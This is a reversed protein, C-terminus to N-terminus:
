YPERSFSKLMNAANRNHPDLALSKKYNIAALEKDGNALYAEGLSNYANSSQPYLEANVNFVAIAEAIRKDRLLSYGLFNLRAEQVAANAPKERKITKYGGIAEALKGMTLQEYPVMANKSIRPAESSGEAFNLRIAVVSGSPSKMFTYRIDIDKRVFESESVPFLEFKPSATPEAYLGGSEQTVTLVRDPNVLFRGVYENLRTPAVSVVERPLPLYDDWQYERAIGRLIENIIQGNDSNVMVVAGYGKDKHVLLQARFGEDGGAHGFYTAAGHKESFFGLGVPDSPLFPAVMKATMEKSLVKNSKGALSLQSEIAFKALDVPTTWLGAAAMEPYVHIKGPVPKGDSRYGSAAKKRTEDPLPQQYTSNTMNLPGLVTEQAIQPYPKREIDMIALQAITVGGGSYRFRTGPEIDVRVAPTNAPPAGDLIQSLTPIREGPAYGPFGHVTLGGTHSLLNALTVKKKATFENDPLKWTTLKDNIDEDLAIRGQEVKKLAAMAAVSKSISGAQFLTETSVPENTEIDKVGYAKAWEIKFNNIIAISVGPVKYHRMREQITWAPDGKILVAPLLGREVREIRSQAPAQGFAVQSFVLVVLLPRFFISKM